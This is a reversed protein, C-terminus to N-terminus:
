NLGALNGAASARIFYGQGAEMNGTGTTGSVSGGGLEGTNAYPTYKQLSEVWDLVQTYISDISILAHEMKMEVYSNLGVDNWGPYIAKVPPLYVGATNMPVVTITSASTAKCWYGEMPTLVPNVSGLSYTWTQTAENWMASASCKTNLGLENWNNNSSDLETPVSFFNWGAKLEIKNQFSQKFEVEITKPTMPIIGLMKCYPVALESGFAGETYWETCGYYNGTVTIRAVGAKTSTLKIKAKGGSCAETNVIISTPNLPDVVGEVYCDDKIAESELSSGLLSSQVTGEVSARVDFYQNETNITLVAYDKGDAAVLNKDASIDWRDPLAVFDLQGYDADLKTATESDPLNNENYEQGNCDNDWFSPKDKQGNKIWMMSDCKDFVSVVVSATKRADLPQHTFVDVASYAVHFAGKGFAIDGCYIRSFPMVEKLDSWGYTFDDIFANKDDLAICVNEFVNDQFGYKDGPDGAMGDGLYGQVRNGDADQVEVNVWAGSGGYQTCKEFCIDENGFLHCQQMQEFTCGDFPMPGLFGDAPLLDSHIIETIKLTTPAGVFKIMATDSQQCITEAVWDCGESHAPANCIAETPFTECGLGEFGTCFGNQTGQCNADEVKVVVNEVVDDMVQLSCDELWPFLFMCSRASLSGTVSNDYNNNYDFDRSIIARGSTSTATVKVDEDVDVANGCADLKRILISSEQEGDAPVGSEPLAIVDWKAPAGPTFVVDFYDGDLAAPTVFIRFGTDMWKINFMSSDDSAVVFTAQGNADTTVANNVAGGEFIVDKGDFASEVLQTFESDDALMSALYDSPELRGEEMLENVIDEVMGKFRTMDFCVDRSDESSYLKEHEWLDVFFSDGNGDKFYLKYPFVMCSDLQVKTALGVPNQFGDTVQLNVNYGEDSCAAMPETIDDHNLAVVQTAPQTKFTVIKQASGATVTVSEAVLDRFIARAVGNIFPVGLIKTDGFGYDKTKSEVPYPDYHFYDDNRWTYKESNFKTDIVEGGTGDTLGLYKNDGEIWDPSNYDEFYQYNIDKLGCAVTGAQLVFYFDRTDGPRVIAGGMRQNDYEGLKFKSVRTDLEAIYKNNGLALIRDGETGAVNAPITRCGWLNDTTQFGAEDENEEYFCIVDGANGSYEFAFKDVVIDKEEPLDTWAPELGQKDPVACNEVVVKYLPNNNATCIDKVPELTIPSDVQIDTKVCDEGKLDIDINSDECERLQNCSDYQRLEVVTRESVYFQDPQLNSPEPFVNFDTRAVPGLIGISLADCMPLAGQYVSACCDAEDIATVTVGPCGCGTIDLNIAPADGTNRLDVCTKQSSLTGCTTQLKVCSTAWGGESCEQDVLKNGCTDLISTELQGQFDNCENFGEANVDICKPASNIVDLTFEDQDLTDSKCVVDLTGLDDCGCVHITAYAPANNNLKGKISKGNNYIVAERLDSSNITKDTSGLSIEVLSERKPLANGNKDTVNVKIDFCQDATIQAGAISPDADVAVPGCEVADAQGLVGKITTTGCNFAGATVAVVNNGITASTQLSADAIGFQPMEQEFGDGDGTFPPTTDDDLDADTNPASTIDFTVLPANNNSVLNGYQDYVSAEITVINGAEVTVDKGKTIACSAPVGPSIAVDEDACAVDPFCANVLANGAVTGPNLRIEVQGSSDTLRPSADVFTSKTTTYYVPIGSHAVDLLRGTGDDKVLQVLIKRKMVNEVNLVTGEKPPNTYETGDYTPDIEEDADEDTHGLITITGSGSVFDIYYNRTVGGQESDKMFGDTMQGVVDVPRGDETYDMTITNVGASLSVDNAILYDGTPTTQLGSSAREVYVDVTMAASAQVYLNNLRGWGGKAQANITYDAAGSGSAMSLFDVYQIALTEASTVKIVPLVSLPQRVYSGSPENHNEDSTMIMIQSDEANAPATLGNITIETTGSPCLQVGDTAYDPAIRISKDSAVLGSYTGDDKENSEITAGLNDAGSAALNIKGGWTEPFTVIIEDICNGGVPENNHMWIKIEKSTSVTQVAVAPPVVSYGVENQFKTVEGLGNAALVSPATIAFASIQAFISAIMVLISFMASFVNNTKNKMKNKGGLLNKLVSRSKKNQM